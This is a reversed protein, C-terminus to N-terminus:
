TQRSINGIIDGTGTLGSGTITGSGCSSDIGSGYSTGLGSSSSSVRIGSVSGDVDDETGM